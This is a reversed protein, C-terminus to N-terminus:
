EAGAYAKLVGAVVANAYEVLIDDNAPSNGEARDALASQLRPYVPKSNVIYPELLVTPCEAMRLILLNRAYVYPKDSDLLVANQKEYTAPPLQMVGALVTSMINGLWQEVAGSGNLLKAALHAQQQESKLEGEDMCGFILVHLDNSDVLQLVDVSGDEAAGPWATANTHISILVDPRIVENILRARETLEGAVLAKRLAKSRVAEAYNKCAEPTHSDPFPLQEMVERLYDVPRKPNVPILEERLLTVEAGLGILLTYAHRAVELTLEAERVYFDKKHIRFERDEHAAWQGGVHGPDLVLRLGKLPLDGKSRLAFIEEPTRWYREESAGAFFGEDLISRWDAFPAYRKDMALSRETVDMSTM